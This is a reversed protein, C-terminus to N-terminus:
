GAGDAPSRRSARRSARRAPPPTLGALREDVAGTVRRAVEPLAFLYYRETVSGGRAHGLAEDIAPLPVGADALWSAYTSRLDKPALRALRAADERSSGLAAAARVGATRLRKPYDNRSLLGGKLGTFV